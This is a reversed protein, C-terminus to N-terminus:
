RTGNVPDDTRWRADELEELADGVAVAYPIGWPTEIKFPNM